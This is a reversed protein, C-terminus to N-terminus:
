RIGDIYGHTISNQNFKQLLIIKIFYIKYLFTNNETFYQKNKNKKPM